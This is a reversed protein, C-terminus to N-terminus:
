LGRSPDIEGLSPGVNPTPSEEGKQSKDKNFLQIVVPQDRLERQQKYQALFAAGEDIAEQTLDKNAKYSDQLRRAVDFRNTLQSQAAAAISKEEIIVTRESAARALHNLAILSQTLTDFTTGIARSASSIVNM